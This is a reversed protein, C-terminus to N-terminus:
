TRQSRAEVEVLVERLAVGRVVTFQVQFGAAHVGEGVSFVHSDDTGIVDARDSPETWLTIESNVSGGGYAGLPVVRCQLENRSGAVGSPWKRFQVIVNKVRLHRGDGSWHAPLDISGTVLIPGHAEGADIPAAWTDDVHGPRNADTQFSVISVADGITLPRQCM